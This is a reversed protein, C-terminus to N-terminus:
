KVQLTYAFVGLYIPALIILSKITPGEVSSSSTSKWIRCTHTHTHTFDTTHVNQVVRGTQRIIHNENQKWCKTSPAGECLYGSGTIARAVCAGSSCGRSPLILGFRGGGVSLDFHLSGGLFCALFVNATDSGAVSCHTNM